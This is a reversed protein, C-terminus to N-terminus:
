APGPTGTLARERAFEPMQGGMAAQELQSYDVNSLGGGYAREQADRLRRGALRKAMRVNAMDGGTLPRSQRQSAAAQLLQQQPPAPQPAAQPLQPAAGQQFQGEPSGSGKM